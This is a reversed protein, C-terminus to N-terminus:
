GSWWPSTTNELTMYVRITTSAWVYCHCFNQIILDTNTKLLAWIDFQELCVFESTNHGRLHWRSCTDKVHDSGACGHEYRRNTRLLWDCFLFLFFINTNAGLSLILYILIKKLFQSDHLAVQHQFHARHTKQNSIEKQLYVGAEIQTQMSLCKNLVKFHLIQGNLSSVTRWQWTGVDSSDQSNKDGSQDASM